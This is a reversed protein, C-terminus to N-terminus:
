LSFFSKLYSFYKERILIDEFSMEHLGNEIIHKNIKNKPTLFYENIKEVSIIKDLNGVVILTEYKPTLTTSECIEKGRALLGLLLRLTLKSLIMPDKKYKIQNEKNHTLGKPNIRGPFKVDGIYGALSRLKSVSLSKYVRKGLFDGVGLAPASLFVKEIKPLSKKELSTGFTILGGMSHGMLYILTEKEKAVFLILQELDKEFDLFSDVDGRKGESVGHGRLDYLVLNYQEKFLALLYEKHRLAYEAIGHTFILTKRHNFDFSYVKLKLGDFSEFYFEKELSM